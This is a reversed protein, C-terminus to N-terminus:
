TTAFTRWRLADAFAPFQGQHRDGKVDDQRRGLESLAVRDADVARGQTDFYDVDGHRMLYVRRRAPPWDTTSNARM